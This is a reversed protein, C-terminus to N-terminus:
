PPDHGTQIREEACLRESGVLVGCVKTWDEPLDQENMLTHKWTQLVKNKPIAKSEFRKNTMSRDLDLRLNMQAIWKNGIETETPWKERDGENMRQNRLRWIMHASETILIKYMRGAGPIKQGQSDQFDAMTCALISGINKLDPWKDVKKKWLSEALDWIIKRGPEECELLIHELSEEPDGCAHCKERHEWEPINAWYKGVKYARHLSKWLFTRIPRRIDKSMTSKWIREDNPTFKFNAETAYRTIDLMETTGNRKPEDKRDLIARYAIAQTIESLQAGELNFNEKVTLDIGDPNEKNAGEGALKDAMENGHVGSHGKVWQFMTEAGQERLRAIIAKILEANKIGIYGIKEWNEFNMTLSDIVYQSDTRIKLPTYPSIQQLIYLIAAMEGIQNLQDDGPIRISRNRPDNEGFWIGTGTRPGKDGDDKYSGDTYIIVTQDRHRLEHRKAPKRSQEKGNGFIRIYDKLEKSQPIAPDFTIYGHEERALENAAKRIPTLELGDYTDEDDPRWTPDIEKNEHQTDEEHLRSYEKPTANTTPTANKPPVM